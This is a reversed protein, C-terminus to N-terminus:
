VTGTRHLSPLGRLNGFIIQARFYLPNEVFQYYLPYKEKTFIFFPFSSLLYCSPYKTCFYPSTKPGELKKKTTDLTKKRLKWPRVLRLLPLLLLYFTAYVPTNLTYSTFERTVRPKPLIFTTSVNISETRTNTSEGTMSLLVSTFNTPFLKPVLHRRTWLFESVGM